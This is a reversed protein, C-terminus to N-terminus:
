SRFCFGGGMLNWGSFAFSAGAMSCNVTINVTPIVTRVNQAKAISDDVNQREEERKSGITNDRESNRRM